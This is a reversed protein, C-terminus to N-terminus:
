ARAHDFEKGWKMLASVYEPRAQVLLTVAERRCLGDGANITDQEHLGIEDEDSLAVAIGGQAWATASDSLHSKALVLVNGAASLEIAARLGAIGSGVVAYDVHHIKPSNTM